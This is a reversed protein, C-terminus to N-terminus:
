ANTFVMFPKDFDPNALVPGRVLAEKLAHLAKQYEETWVVKDPKGKKCLGTIPAAIASFHPLFRRYYGARGIFAQVQKKTHPAPWNWIVEVKAPEPKLCGSGVWHGLYTLEAM